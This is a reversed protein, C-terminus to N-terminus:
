LSALDYEIDEFIDEIKYLAKDAESLNRDAIHDEVENYLAKLRDKQKLLIKKVNPNGDLAYLLKDFTAVLKYLTPDDYEKIVNGYILNGALKPYAAKLGQAYSSRVDVTLQMYKSM